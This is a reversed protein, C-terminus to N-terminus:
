GALWGVLLTLPVVIVLSPLFNALPLKKIALLNLGIGLIMLGGTASLEAAVAPSM